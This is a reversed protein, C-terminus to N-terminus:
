SLQEKLFNQAQEVFKGDTAQEVLDGVKDIGAAAEEEHGEMAGKIQDVIDM